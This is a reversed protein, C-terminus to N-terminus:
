TFNFDYRMYEQKAYQNYLNQADVNINETVWYAELNESKSKNLFYELMYRAIGQRRHSPMVYLDSLYYRPAHLAFNHILFCMFGCVENNVVVVMRAIEDSGAVFNNWDVKAKGSIVIDEYYDAIMSMWVDYDEILLPRLIINKRDLDNM